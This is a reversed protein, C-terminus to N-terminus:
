FASRSRITGDPDVQVFANGVKCDPCRTAKQWIPLQKITAAHFIERGAREIRIEIAGSTKADKGAAAPMAILMSSLVGEGPVTENTVEQTKCAGRYCGTLTVGKRMATPLQGLDVVISPGACDVIPCTAASQCAVLVFVLVVATLSM